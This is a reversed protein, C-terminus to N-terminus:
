KGGADSAFFEINFPNSIAASPDNRALERADDPNLAVTPVIANAIRVFQSVINLILDAKSYQGEAPMPWFPDCFHVSGANYIDDVYQILWNKDPECTCNYEYFGLGASAINSFHTTVIEFQEKTIAGFWTHIKPAGPGKARQLYELSSDAYRQATKLAPRIASIQDESCTPFDPLSVVSSAATLTLLFARLSQSKSFMM